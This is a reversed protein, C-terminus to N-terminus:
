AIYAHDGEAVLAAARNLRSSYDALRPLGDFLSELWAAADQHLSAFRELVAADYEADSHDNLVPAGDVESMQWATVVEKVRQDLPLFADPAASANDVGWAGSDATVMESGLLKGEDTLQILASPDGHM